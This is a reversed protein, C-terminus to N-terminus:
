PRGPRHRTGDGMGLLRGPRSLFRSAGPQPELVEEASQHAFAHALLGEADDSWDDPGGGTSGTSVVSGKDAAGAQRAYFLAYRSRAPSAAPAGREPVRLCWRTGEGPASAVRLDAGAERALDGLVRLGFHGHAPNARVLAPEFGVGDDSVELVTAGEHGRLSLTVSRAQSHRMANLLCEHAVRYILREEVVGLGADADPDLDILVEIDRSGLSVVLDDLAAVLGATELNPPYIDVVLSRMATIGRRVTASAERLRTALEDQDVAAARTAASSVTLSAGALDQIVGDHLNGAIRRREDTSAEVARELLAERQQQSQRVKTVLRWVVPVMLVILAVLSSLTIGAFGRWIQGARSTVGDYPAYTEFLLPKGAPTWVPRYVELLKGQGREYTNEPRGLDSVEAHTKPRTFVGREEEGLPFKRNLLRPEDSYVIRGEPTWIKVRRSSSGLVYKHVARDMIAFAKPDGSALNDRLAPQVVADALLGASKAADNVSEREALRRAAVSGSLGVLLLVLLAGLVLPILVRKRSM